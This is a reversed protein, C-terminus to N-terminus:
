YIFSQPSQLFIQKPSALSINAQGTNNVERRDDRRKNNSLMSKKRSVGSKFTM